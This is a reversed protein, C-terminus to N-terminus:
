LLCSCNISEGVQETNARAADKAENLFTKRRVNCLYPRRGASNDINEENANYCKYGTEYGCPM